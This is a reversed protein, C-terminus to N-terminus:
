RRTSSRPESESCSPPPSRPHSARRRRRRPPRARGGPRAHRRRDAAQPRHPRLALRHRAPRRGLRGPLRRRRRRDRARERRPRRSLPARAGLRARREPQQGTRGALLRAPRTACRRARSRRAFRGLWMPATPASSARSTPVRHRPRLPDLDGTGARRDRSRRGVRAHAARLDRRARRHRVGDRRRRPLRGVRQSRARARPAAPRRPRDEDRGDDVLRPGPQRRPPPQRRRDLGLQPRARDPAAGAPRPALRHRAAAQARRPRRPRGRRPQHAGQRDRLRRRLQPDRGELRSRLGREGVLPLVSRELGVMAGVFANLAVLLAFQGANARLGLRASAATMDADPGDRPPEGRRDEGPGRSAPPVDGLLAEVFGDADGHALAANHRREFGIARSPTARSGAAASRAATTARTSSSTIPCSSCASSRATSSSERARSPSGGAHLDPRGVDGVLLSDGTFVLWPEETGRRRDAVVYAHHAPAHGPTALARVVTNGLEVVDGDGLPSTSSSSARGPRCIPRRGPRRSSRRFGRSMTQRSTPRSSPWSRRASCARGRRPLGRRARRAPRRCRAPSAHPLRVPLERVRDRTSPVSAPDDSAVRYSPDSRMPCSSDESIFWREPRYM